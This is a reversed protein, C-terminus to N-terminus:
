RKTMGMSILRGNASGMHWKTIIGTIKLCKQPDFPFDM